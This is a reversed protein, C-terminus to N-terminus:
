GKEAKKKAKQRADYKSVASTIQGALAEADSDPNFALHIAQSLRQLLKIDKIEPHDLTEELARAIDVLSQALDAIHGFKTGEMRATTDRTVQRLRRLHEQAEGQAERRDLLPLLLEVLFSIQFANRRMKMENIESNIGRIADQLQAANVPRGEMKDSLTNPVEISSVDSERAADKRRDPGIYDSTVVFPKRRSVLAEIRDFLDKPSFPKILLDDPGADILRRIHDLESNWVTCIIPIYPNDGLQGYRIERMFKAGDAEATVMEADVLVLDPARAQVAAWLDALSGFDQIQEFGERNLTTRITLRLESKSEAYYLLVKRANDNKRFRRSGTM